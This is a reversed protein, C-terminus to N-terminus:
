DDHIVPGETTYTFFRRRRSRSGGSDFLRRAEGMMFATVDVMPLREADDLSVWRLDSLEGDGGLSGTAQDALAVFFRAHFRIPSWAPTLARGLYDLRDLAPAMGETRLRAWTRGAVAGVDGAGGLLLGTEEFTERVATVALTSAFDSDCSAAMLDKLGSRLDSVCDVQGDGPELTGGPFVYASPAFSADPRRQGMLVSLGREGRRLLLLSAADKPEVLNSDAM